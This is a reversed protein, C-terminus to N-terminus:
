RRPSNKNVHIPPPRPAFNKSNGSRAASNACSGSSSTTTIIRSNPDQVPYNGQTQTEGLGGAYSKSPKIKRKFPTEKKPLDEVSKADSLSTFSQSKGEYYKSLGRKIPLHEMLSSLEYLPGSSDLNQPNPSRNRASSSCSEDDDSGGSSSLSESMEDDDDEDADCSTPIKGLSKVDRAM